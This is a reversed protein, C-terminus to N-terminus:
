AAESFPPLDDDRPVPTAPPERWVTLGCRYPVVPEGAYSVSGDWDDPVPVFVRM